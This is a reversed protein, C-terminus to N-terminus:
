AVLQTQQLKEHNTFKVYKGKKASFLRNMIIFLLKMHFDYIYLQIYKLTKPFNLHSSFYFKHYKLSIRLSLFSIAFSLTFVHIWDVFTSSSKRSVLLLNSYSHCQHFFKPFNVISPLCNKPSSLLYFSHTLLHLFKMPHIHNNDINLM